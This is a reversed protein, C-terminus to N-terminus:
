AAVDIWESGRSDKYIATTEAQKHGLLGQPDYGQKHYLRAALSRLEHFSPPRMGDPVQIGAEDRCRAFETALTQPHVGMGPKGVGQHATHHLLRQSVVSDRCRAVIDALSWGVCDLRLSLPIRLRMGTKRQVVHLWGDQLDHFRMTATDERRQAGVLGLELSRCVWPHHSKAAEYIAHFAELTLRARKVEPTGLSIVTIPNIATWGAAAVDGFFDKLTARLGKAMRLKGADEYVRLWDACQRTVDAVAEQSAGIVVHGIDKNITAIQQKRAYRTLDALKKRELLELYRPVFGAITRTGQSRPAVPSRKQAVVWLNADRGQAIADARSIRGIGMERGNQPNTWSWYGNRDRLNPPLDM